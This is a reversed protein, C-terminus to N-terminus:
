KAYPKPAAEAAIMSSDMNIYAIERAQDIRDEREIKEKAISLLMNVAATYDVGRRRAYGQVWEFTESDVSVSQKVTSKSERAM